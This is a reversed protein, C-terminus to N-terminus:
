AQFDEVPVAPPAPRAPGVGVLDVVDNRKVLAASGAIAGVELDQAGAVMSLLRPRLITSRLRGGLGCPPGERRFKGLSDFRGM